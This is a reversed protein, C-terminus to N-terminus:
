PRTPIFLLLLAINVNINAIIQQKRLELSSKIHM